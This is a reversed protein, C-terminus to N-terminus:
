RPSETPPPTGSGRRLQSLRRGRGTSRDAGQEQTRRRGLHIVPDGKARLIAATENLKLTASEAISRGILSISM